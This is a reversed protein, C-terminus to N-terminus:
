RALDAPRAIKGPWRTIVIPVGVPNWAKLWEAEAPSIRVCGRSSPKSGVAEPRDYVRTEGGLHYPVSHILISGEPGPFLYWMYDAYLQTAYFYGRGWDAGVLGRWPPTLTTTTPAGTSVPIARVEVGNEYVHMVQKEQDVVLSRKEAALSALLLAAPGTTPLAAPPLPSSTVVTAPRTPTPWPSPSPTPSFVVAPTQAPTATLTPALTPKISGVPAAPREAALAAGLPWLIRLALLFIIVGQGLGPKFKENKM